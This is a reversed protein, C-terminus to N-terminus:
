AKKSKMLNTKITDLIVSKGSGSEGIFAMFPNIEIDTKVIHGFNKIVLREKNKMM